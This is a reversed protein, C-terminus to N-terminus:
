SHAGRQCAHMAALHEGRGVAAVFIRHEVAGLELLLRSKTSRSRGSRRGAQRAITGSRTRAQVASCGPIVLASKPAVDGSCTRRDVGPRQGDLEVVGGTGRCGGGRMARGRGRPRGGGRGLAPQDDEPQLEGRRRLGPPVKLCAQRFPEPRSSARCASRRSRARPSVRPRRLRVVGPRAARRSRDADFRDLDAYQEVQAQQPRAGVTLAVREHASLAAITWPLRLSLYLAM